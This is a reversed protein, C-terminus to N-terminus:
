KVHSSSCVVHRHIAARFHIVAIPIIPHCFSSWADLRIVRTNTSVILLYSPLLSLRFSFPRILILFLVILTHLTLLWILITSWRYGFSFRYFFFASMAFVLFIWRRISSAWFCKISANGIKIVLSTINITVLVNDFFLLWRSIILSIPFQEKFLRM